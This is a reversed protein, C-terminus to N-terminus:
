DTLTVTGTYYAKRVRAAAREAWAEVGMKRILCLQYVKTNHPLVDARDAYPQLHECPFDVCESCNHLGREATCRWVNCPKDMGLFAIVGEQARCGPCTVDEEPRDLRKALRHRLEGDDRALYLPCNFCDLGCPATMEHYDM